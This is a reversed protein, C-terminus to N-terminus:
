FSIFSSHDKNFKKIGLNNSDASSNVYSNASASLYFSSLSSCCFTIECIWRSRRGNMSLRRLISFACVKGWFYSICKDM